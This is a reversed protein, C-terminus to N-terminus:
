ICKRRNPRNYLCILQKSTIKNVIFILMSSSVFRRSMRVELLSIRRPFMSVRCGLLSCALLRVFLPPLVINFMVYQSGFFGIAIFVNVLIAIFM